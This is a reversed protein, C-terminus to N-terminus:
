PQVEHPNPGYKNAIPESPFLAFVFSIAVCFVPAIFFLLFVPGFLLMAALAIGISSEICAPKSSCAAMAAFYVVSCALLYGAAKLFYGARGTDHLRRLAATWTPTTLIALSWFSVFLQPQPLSPAVALVSLSVIGLNLPAFWWFETRSARGSTIATKRLCTEIARIPGM